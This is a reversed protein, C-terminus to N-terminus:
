DRKLYTWMEVPYLKLACTEGRWTIRFDCDGELINFNPIAYKWENEKEGNNWCYGSYQKDLSSGREGRPNNAM